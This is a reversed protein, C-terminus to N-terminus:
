KTKIKQKIEPLDTWIPIPFGQCQGKGLLTQVRQLIKDPM